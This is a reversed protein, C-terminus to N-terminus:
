EFESINKPATLRALFLNNKDSCLTEQMKENGIYTLLAFILLLDISSQMRPKATANRTASCLDRNPSGRQNSKVNKFHKKWLTRYILNLTAKINPNPSPIFHRHRSELPWFDWNIFRQSHIFIYFHSGCILIPASVNILQVV